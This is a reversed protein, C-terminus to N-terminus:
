RVAIKDKAAITLLPAYASLIHTVAEPQVAFSLIIVFDPILYAEIFVICSLLL